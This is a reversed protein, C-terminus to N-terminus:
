DAHVFSAFVNFLIRPFNYSPIKQHNSCPVEVVKAANTASPGQTSSAHRAECACSEHCGVEACPGTVARCLPWRRSTLTLNMASQTGSRSCKEAPRQGTLNIKRQWRGVEHGQVFTSRSWDSKDDLHGHYRYVASRMLTNLRLVICIWGKDSLLMFPLLSWKNRFSTYIRRGCWYLVPQALFFPM